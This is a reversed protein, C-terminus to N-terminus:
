WDPPGTRWRLSNRMNHKGKAKELSEEPYLEEDFRLVLVFFRSSTRMDREGPDRYRVSTAGDGVTCFRVADWYSKNSPLVGAVYEFRGRSDTRAVVPLHNASTFISGSVVELWLAENPGLQLFSWDDGHTCRCRFDERQRQTLLYLDSGDGCSHRYLRLGPFGRNLVALADSTTLRVAADAESFRSYGVLEVTEWCYRDLRRATRIHLAARDRIGENASRLLSVMQGFLFTFRSVIPVREIDVRKLRGSTSSGMPRRELIIQRWLLNAPCLLHTWMETLLHNQYPAAALLLQAYPVVCLDMDGTDEEIVAWLALPLPIDDMTGLTKALSTVNSASNPLKEPYRSDKSVLKTLAESIAGIDLRGESLDYYGFLCEDLLIESQRLVLFSVTDDSLYSLVHRLLENAHEYNTEESWFFSNLKQNLSNVSVETLSVLAKRSKSLLADLGHDQAREMRIVIPGLVSTAKLREFLERMYPYRISLDLIEELACDQTSQVTSGAYKLLKRCDSEFDTDDSARPVKTLSRTREGSKKLQDLVMESRYYIRKRAEQPGSGHNAAFRNLRSVFLEGFFDYALGVTRGAGELNSATATTSLSSVSANHESYGPATYIGVTSQASANRRSRLAKLHGAFLNIRTVLAKGLGDYALGVTRGAGTLNSATSTTSISSQSEVVEHFYINHVAHVREPQTTPNPASM